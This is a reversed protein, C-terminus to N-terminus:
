FPYPSSLPEDANQMTGYEHGYELRKIGFPIVPQHCKRLISVPFM